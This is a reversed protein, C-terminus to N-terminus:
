EVSFTQEASSIWRGNSLAKVIVNYKGPAILSTKLSLADGKAALNSCSSDNEFVINFMEVNDLDHEWTVVTSTDEAGVEVVQLIM